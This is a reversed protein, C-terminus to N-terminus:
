TPASVSAIATAAGSPTGWLEGLEELLSDGHKACFAPGIGRIELLAEANSPRRRLIEELVTNAAVTFAPKGEARAYRWQRLREFEREDVPDALPEPSELTREASKGGRRAVIPGPAGAGS